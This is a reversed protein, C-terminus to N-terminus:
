QRVAATLTGTNGDNDDIANDGYSSVIGGNVSSYGTANGTITSHTLRLIANTGNARVGTANGAATTRTLVLSTVSHATQSDVEFGYFATNNSAVSDAVAVNIPGTGNFGSVMLGAFGNGSLTVHDISAKMAGSGFSSIAIGTGALDTFSSNSVTLTELTTGGWDFILGDAQMNRVVCNEVVLSKGSDFRIGANGLGNGDILLGNLNVADNPGALVQVGFHGFAVAIGAFGHGQISIAKSIVVGGYGAPDLVDIEGGAPIVDHAHQFTRCPAAFTCPNADSGQASVFVRTQAQVPLAALTCGAAVFAILLLVRTM